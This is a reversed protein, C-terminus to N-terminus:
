FSAIKKMIQEQALYYGLFLAFWVITNDTHPQTGHLIDLAEQATSRAVNPEYLAGIIPLILGLTLTKGVKSPDNEDSKYGKNKGNIKGCTCNICKQNQDRFTNRQVESAHHSITNINIDVNTESVQPSELHRASGEKESADSRSKIDIGETNRAVEFHQSSNDGDSREDACLEM